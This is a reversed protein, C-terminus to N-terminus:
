SNDVNRHNTRLDSVRKEKRIDMCKVVAV